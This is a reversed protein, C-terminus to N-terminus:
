VPKPWTAKLTNHIVCSSDNEKNLQTHQRKGGGKLSLVQIHEIRAGQQFCAMVDQEEPDSTHHHHAEFQSALQWEFLHSWGLHCHLGIPHM